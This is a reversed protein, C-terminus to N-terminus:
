SAMSAWRRARRCLSEMINVRTVIRMLAYIMHTEDQRWKTKCMEACDTITEEQLQKNKYRFNYRKNDVYVSDATTCVKRGDDFEQCNGYKPDRNFMNGLLIKYKEVKPINHCTGNDCRVGLTNKTTEDQRRNTLWSYYNYDRNYQTSTLNIANILGVHDETACWCRTETLSDGLASALLLSASAFALIAKAFRM